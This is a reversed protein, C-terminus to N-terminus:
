IENAAPPLVTVSLSGLGSIWSLTGSGSGRVQWLKPALQFTQRDSPGRTGGGGGGKGVYDVLEDTM